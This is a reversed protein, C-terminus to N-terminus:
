NATVGNYIWRTMDVSGFNGGTIIVSKSTLDQIACSYRPLTWLVYHLLRDYPNMGLVISWKFPHGRKRELQLCFNVPIVM